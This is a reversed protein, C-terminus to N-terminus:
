AKRTEKCLNRLMPNEFADSERNIISHFMTMHGIAMGSSFYWFEGGPSPPSALTEGWAASRRPLQTEQKWPMVCSYMTM